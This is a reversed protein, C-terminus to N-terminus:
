LVGMKKKTDSQNLQKIGAEFNTFNVDLHTQADALSPYSAKDYDIMKFATGSACTFRVVNKKDTSLSSFKDVWDVGTRIFMEGETMNILEDIAQQKAVGVNAGDTYSFPASTHTTFDISVDKGARILAQGSTCLTSTM